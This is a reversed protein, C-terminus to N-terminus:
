KRGELERIARTKLALETLLKELNQEYQAPDMATKRQKLRAIKQELAEREEYLARLAPDATSSSGVDALDPALFMTGALHGESGDELAAHETPLLGEKKYEEAVKARAYTFAELVSVRGNKDLDARDTAFAEVFYSPFRTENREGGTTTATVVTRGPASLAPLFGGSASSTNVFIVRQSRFQDLLKAYDTATLDPGPLNFRSERGDFSGHGILLIFVTDGPGARQALDTIARQVNERSSRATIRSPDRDPKEALFTVDVADRKQAADIMTTAWKYFLDGHEQDGEVGTVVLLHIGAAAAPSVLTWALVLACFFQRNPSNSIAL